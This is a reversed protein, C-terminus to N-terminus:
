SYVFLKGQKQCIFSYSHNCPVAKLTMTDTSMVTCSKHLDSSPEGFGWRRQKIKKWDLLFM